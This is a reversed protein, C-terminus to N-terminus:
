LRHKNDMHKESNPKGRITILTPCYKNKLKMNTNM